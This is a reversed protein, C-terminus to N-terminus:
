GKVVILPRLRVVLHALGANHVVEVIKQADKSTGVGTGVFLPSYTIEIRKTVDEVLSRLRIPSERLFRNLEDRHIYSHMVDKTSFAISGEAIAENLVSWSTVKLVRVLKDMTLWEDECQSLDVVKQKKEKLYRVIEDRHFIYHPTPMKQSKLDGGQVHLKLSNAHIGTLASAESLSLWEQDTQVPPLPPTGEEDPRVHVKVGLVDLANRKEQFTAEHYRGRMVNVFEVFELVRQQYSATLAAISSAAKCEEEFRQLQETKAQIDQAILSRLYENRQTAHEQRAHEIALKM